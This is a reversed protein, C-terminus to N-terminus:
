SLTSWDPSGFYNVLSNCCTGPASARNWETIGTFCRKYGHEGTGMRAFLSSWGSTSYM